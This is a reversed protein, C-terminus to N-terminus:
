IVEIIRIIDDKIEFTWSSGISAVLDQLEQISPYDDDNGTFNRADDILIVHGRVSHKFIHHLEEIIPTNKPGKTTIGGSYHADLWFLCRRELRALVVPLVDVSDGQLITIHNKGTFEKKAREYLEQGIEISYIEDFVDDIAHVMCGVYTGTEVFVQLQFKKAYEKVSMQKVLHPPPSPRGAKL